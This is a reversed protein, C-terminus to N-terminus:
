VNYVCSFFNTEKVNSWYARCHSLFHRDTCFKTNVKYPCIFNAFVASLKNKLVKLIVSYIHFYLKHMFQLM